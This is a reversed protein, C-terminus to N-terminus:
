DKADRPEGDARGDAPAAGDGPHDDPGPEGDTGPEDAPEPKDFSTPVKRLHTNMSRILFGMAIFLAVIVVLGVPSSGGFEPANPPPQQQTLVPPVLVPSLLALVPTM